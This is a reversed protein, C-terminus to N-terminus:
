FFLKTPPHRSPAARFVPAGEPHTHGRFTLFTGPPPVLWGRGGLQVELAAGRGAGRQAWLGGSEAGQGDYPGLGGRREGRKRGKLATCSTVESGTEPAPNNTKPFLGGGSVSMQSGTVGSFTDPDWYRDGQNPERHGQCPPPRFIPTIPPGSPCLPCACCLLRLYHCGFVGIRATENRLSGM